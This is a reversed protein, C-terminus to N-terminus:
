TLGMEPNARLSFWENSLAMVSHLIVASWINGTVLTIYCLIFGVPVTGFTEDPGKYFHAFSYLAINLVIAPWPHMVALSAYLLFGRFLFEYALLFAIWTLGSVVLINVPWQKMRIQPYRAMNGPNAAGLYNLALAAPILLYFWWPPPKLFSFGLGYGKLSGEPLLAIILLTLGGMFVVGITRQTIVQVGQPELGSFTVRFKKAFTESQSLFYYGTFGITCWLVAMIFPLYEPIWPLVTM